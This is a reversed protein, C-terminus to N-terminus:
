RRKVLGAFGGNDSMTVKFTDGARIKKVSKKLETPENGSKKMDTWIEFDYNGPPLFDLRIEISKGTSNNMAGVFWKEGSRKAIAV